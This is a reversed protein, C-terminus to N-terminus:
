CKNFLKYTGPVTSLSTHNYKNRTQLIFAYPMSFAREQDYMWLKQPQSESELIQM